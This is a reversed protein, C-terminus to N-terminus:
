CRTKSFTGRVKFPIIGKPWRKTPLRIGNRKDMNLIIDGEFYNGQEEPNGVKSKAWEVLAKGSAKDDPDTVIKSIDFKLSPYAAYTHLFLIIFSAKVFIM